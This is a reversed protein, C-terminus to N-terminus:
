TQYDKYVILDDRHIVEKARKGKLIKLDASSLSVIGRGIENGNEDQISVVDKSKFEGKIEIIGVPLLSANKQLLAVKAGENILVIGKTSTSYGIWNKKHSIKTEPVILTGPSDTQWKQVSLIKQIINKELGSAIITAVGNLQAVRVADLKTQLGGRGSDSKGEARIKKLESFKEILSLRKAMTSKYPNETFVGPVDTLIILLGVNMKSAVIASLKDNDGFSHNQNVLEVTSVSDNENILPLAKMTILTELTNSFNLYKKRDTLDDATVLLQSSTIGLKKLIKNYSEMLLIQGTAACAQKKEISDTKSIKLATKGLAVAGSTVIIFEKEKFHAINNLINKIRTLAFNQNEIVIQTGLKILIRKSKSIDM